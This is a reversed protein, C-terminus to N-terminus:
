GIFGGAQVTVAAAYGLVFGIGLLIASLVMADLRKEIERRGRDLNIEFTMYKQKEQIETM